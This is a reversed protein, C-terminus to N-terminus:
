SDKKHEKKGPQEVEEPKAPPKEKANSRPERQPAVEPAWREPQKHEPEPVPKVRREPAAPM